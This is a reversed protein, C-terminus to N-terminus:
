PRAPQPRRPRWGRLVGFILGLLALIGAGFFAVELPAPDDNTAFNSQTDPEGEAGGLVLPASPDAIVGGTAKRNPQIEVGRELSGIRTEVEEPSAAEPPYLTEPPHRLRGNLHNTFEVAEQSPSQGTPPLMYLPGEARGPSVGWALSLGFIGAATAGLLLSRRRTRPSKSTGEPLASLPM